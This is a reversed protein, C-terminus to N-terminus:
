RSSWSGVEQEMPGTLVQPPVASSAIEDAHHQLCKEVGNLDNLIPCEPRLDGHCHTALVELTRQIAQMERIKEELEQIHELVLQQVEGSARSRDQWLGLLQKIQVISFGLKRARRIFGLTHIESQSYVRYNAFTRGAPPILGISEYHRIMKASVGSAEAAEGINFLGQERAESLELSPRFRRTERMEGM